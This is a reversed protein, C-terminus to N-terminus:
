KAKKLEFLFNGNDKTSEFKEPRKAGDGLDPKYCIKLV